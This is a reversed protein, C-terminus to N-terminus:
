GQAEPRVDEESNSVAYGEGHRRFVDPRRNIASRVTEATVKPYGLGRLADTITAINLPTKSSSIIQRVTVWLPSPTVLSDGLEIEIDRPQDAPMSEKMLAVLARINDRKVKSEQLDSLQKNLAKLKTELVALTKRLVPRDTPEVATEDGLFDPHESGLPPLNLNYRMRTVLAHAKDRDDQIKILSSLEEDLEALEQQQEVLAERILKMEDTV